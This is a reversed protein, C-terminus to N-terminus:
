AAHELTHLYWKVFENLTSEFEPHYPGPEFFHSNL